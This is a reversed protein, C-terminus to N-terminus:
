SISNPQPRRPWRRRSNPQAGGGPHTGRIRANLFNSAEILASTPVGLPLPLVRNEVQGDEAVLVVLAQAGAGAARIRHAEAAREIKATLVSAPRM